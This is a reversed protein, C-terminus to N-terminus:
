LWRTVVARNTLVLWAAKVRKSFKMGIWGKPKALYTKGKQIALPMEQLEKLTFEMKFSQRVVAIRLAKCPRTLLKLAHNLRCMRMAKNRQWADADLPENM